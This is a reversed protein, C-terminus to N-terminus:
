PPATPHDHGLSFSGSGDVKGHLFPRSRSSGLHHDFVKPHLDEHSCPRSHRCRQKAPVFHRPQPSATGLALEHAVDGFRDHLSGEQLINAANTLMGAYELARKLYRFRVNTSSSRHEVCDLQNGLRTVIAAQVEQEHTMLGRKDFSECANSLKDRVSAKCVGFVGLNDVFVFHNSGMAEKQGNGATFIAPLNRDNMIHSGTPGLCSSMTNENTMPVFFGM